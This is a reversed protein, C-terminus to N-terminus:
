RDGDYRIQCGWGGEELARVAAECEPDFRSLIRVHAADRALADREEQECQWAMYEQESWVPVLATEADRANKFASMSAIM